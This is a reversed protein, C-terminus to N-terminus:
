ISKELLYVLWRGDKEVTVGQFRELCWSLKDEQATGPAFFIEAVPELTLIPPSYKLTSDM